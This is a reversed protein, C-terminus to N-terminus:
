RGTYASARGGAKGPVRKSVWRVAMEYSRTLIASNPRSTVVLIDASSFLWLTLLLGAAETERPAHRKKHQQMM